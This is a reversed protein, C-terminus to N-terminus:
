IIVMMRVFIITDDAYQLHTVPVENHGILPSRLFRKECCYHISRSLSDGIITFLFPSVPDVQRIGRALIKGRPKGNVLVSFNISSICGKIWMRWRRGFGKYDM